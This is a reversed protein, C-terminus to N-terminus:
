AFASWETELGGTYLRIVSHKTPDDAQQLIDMFRYDFWNNIFRSGSVAVQELKQAAALRISESSRQYSLWSTVVMPFLTLMLFWILLTRNISRHFGVRRIEHHTKNM